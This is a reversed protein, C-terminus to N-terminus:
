FKLKYDKSYKKQFTDTPFTKPFFISKAYFFFYFCNKVNKFIIKEIFRKCFFINACLRKWLTFNRNSNSNEVIRTGFTQKQWKTCKALFFNASSDNILYERSTVCPSTLRASFLNFQKQIYSTVGWFYCKFPLILLEICFRWLQLNPMNKAKKHWYSLCDHVIRLYNQLGM